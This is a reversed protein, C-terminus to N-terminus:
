FPIDDDDPSEKVAEGFRDIEPDEPFERNEVLNFDIWTAGTKVAIRVLEENNQDRLTVCRDSIDVNSYEIDYLGVLRDLIQNLRKLQM